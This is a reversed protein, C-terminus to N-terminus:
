YPFCLKQLRNLYTFRPRLFLVRQTLYVGLYKFSDVVKVTNGDYKFEYHKNSKRNEFIMVKTKEVNVTLRWIKCYVELNELSKQLGPYTDAFIVTDDAYLFLLIKLYVITDNQSNHETVPGYGAKFFQSAYKTIM